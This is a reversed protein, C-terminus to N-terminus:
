GLLLAAGNNIIHMLINVRMSGTKYRLYGFAAGLMALAPFAQPQLHSAAFITSALAIAFAPRMRRMLATQLLGRFILEEVVAALVAITAFLITLNLPTKPVAAILARTQAQAETTSVVYTSYLAVLATSAVILIVSLIITHAVGLRSWRNLGLIDARERNRIYLALLAVTLTGSTFTAWINVMASKNFDTMTKVLDATSAIEPFAIKAAVFACASQIVFFLVIWGLAAWIGPFPKAPKAAATDISDNM